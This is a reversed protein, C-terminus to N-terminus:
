SGFIQYLKLLFSNPNNFVVGAHEAYNLLNSATSVRIDSTLHANQIDEIMYKVMVPYKEKDADLLERVRPDLKSLMSMVQLRSNNPLHWLGFRLCMHFLLRFSDFLVYVNTKPKERKEVGFYVFKPNFGWIRM